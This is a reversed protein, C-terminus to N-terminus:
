YTIKMKKVLRHSRYWFFLAGSACATGLLLFLNLISFSYRGADIFSQISQDSLTRNIEASNNIEAATQITSLDVQYLEFPLSMTFIFISGFIGAAMFLGGALTALIKALSRFSEIEEEIKDM